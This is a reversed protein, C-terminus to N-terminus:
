SEESVPHLFVTVPQSSSSSSESEESAKGLEEKAEKTMGSIRLVTDVILDSDPGSFLAIENHDDLSNPNYLLQGTDPDELSLALMTAISSFGKKEGIRSRDGLMLAKCQVREGSDPLNIVERKVLSGNKQKLRDKLSM